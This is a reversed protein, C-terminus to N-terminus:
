RNGGPVPLLEVRRNMRRGKRTSNSAVPDDEGFAELTLRWDEIGHGVLYDRVVGCRKGSLRLNDRREGLSDTFGRVEIELTPDQQLHWAVQELLARAEATLEAGGSAFSISAFEFAAPAPAASGPPDSETELGDAVLPDRGLAVEAGDLAGDGDTDARNPDTGFTDVEEGDTLGDMDSDAMLPNTFWRRTEAEDTLGDGDRDVAKAEMTATAEPVRERGHSPARRPYPADFRGFVLSVGLSFLMDNGKNLSASDLDDRLTYTYNGFIELAM